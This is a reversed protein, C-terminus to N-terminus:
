YQTTQLGICHIQTLEPTESSYLSLNSYIKFSKLRSIKALLCNVLKLLLSHLTLSKIGWMPKIGLIIKLNSKTESISPPDLIINALETVYMKSM